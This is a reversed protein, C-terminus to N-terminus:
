DYTAITRIAGEVSIAIFGTPVKAVNFTGGGAGVSLSQTPSTNSAGAYSLAGITNKSAEDLPNRIQQIKRAQYDNWMEALQEQTPNM